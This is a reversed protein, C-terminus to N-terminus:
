IERPKIKTKIVYRCADMAHDDKKLPSDIGRDTAKSDWVYAGIETIFNPCRERNVRLKGNKIMSAMMRIGDLVNNDADNVIIGKKRVENKWSAASPDIIAKVLSGTTDNPLGYETIYERRIFTEFDVAYESDTKQKNADRSNYYYENDIYLCGRLPDFYCDLFVMPNTTGYDNGIYRQGQSFIYDRLDPNNSWYSNDYENINEDWIEGYISGEGVVWLGEIFRKYWLGTYEAKLSSVYDPDLTDNDDIHFSFVTGKLEGTKIRDITGIKFWHKPNDPNTTGFFMAGKVSLRSLLMKFFDEPWLTIEDGYAGAVTMGRIKGESRADSAGVVYIRRGLINCEGTGRNYRFNNEGIMAELPDLINRKLTRETKGVMLLDGPPSDCIYAIWRVLSAVTKGSRVSGEWINLRSYSEEISDLAKVSFPQWDYM